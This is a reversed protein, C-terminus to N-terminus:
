EEENELAYIEPDLIEDLSESPRADPPHDLTDPKLRGTRELWSLLSERYIQPPIDARQNRAEQRLSPNEFSNM